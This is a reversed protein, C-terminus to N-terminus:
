EGSLCLLVTAIRAAIFARVFALVAATGVVYQVEKTMPKRSTLSYSFPLVVKGAIERRYEECFAFSLHMPLKGSVGVDM